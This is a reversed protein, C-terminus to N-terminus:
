MRINRKKYSYDGAASYNNDNKGKNKNMEM